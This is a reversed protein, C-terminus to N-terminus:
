LRDLMIKIRDSYFICDTVKKLFGSDALKVKDGINPIFDPNNWVERLTNNTDYFEIRMIM